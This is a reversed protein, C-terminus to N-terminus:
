ILLLINKLLKAKRHRCTSFLESRKNLSAGEPKFIIFLKEKLCLNCKKTLPNFAGAKGVVKWSVDFSKNRDKLDWIHSSFTTSHESSRHKISNRHEYFREKFSRSTLGTYTERNQNEDIVEARYIFSSELCNGNLPCPGMAGSCNCGRQAVNNQEVKRIKSNHQSIRIKMLGTSSLPNWVIGM